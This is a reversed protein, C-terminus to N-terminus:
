RIILKEIADYDCVLEMHEKLYALREDCLKYVNGYENAFLYEKEKVKYRPNIYSPQRKQPVFALYFNNNKDYFLMSNGYFGSMKLRECLLFLKEADDTVCVYGVNEDLDKLEQEKLVFMECGGDPTSFVRVNLKANQSSFGTKEYAKDMLEWFFRKTKIENYDLKDISVNRKEMEDASVIIKLSKNSIYIFEVM